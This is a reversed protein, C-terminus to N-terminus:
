CRASVELKVVERQAEENIMAADHIRQAMLRKDEYVFPDVRMLKEADKVSKKIDKLESGIGNVLRQVVGDM